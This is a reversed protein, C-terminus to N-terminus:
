CFLVTSPLLKIAKAGKNVIGLFDVWTNKPTQM